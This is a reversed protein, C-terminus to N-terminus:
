SLVARSFAELDTELPTFSPALKERIARADLSCRAIPRPQSFLFVDAGRVGFLQGTIAQAEDSALFAVFRGVHSPDIGLAEEKYAAQAENQPVISETVRTAGFPAVANVAVGTRAMDHALVRTLGFLGAKSSAYASQAFNGYFGATSVINVIRGWQYRGGGRGGKAQERMLIAASRSAAFAAVLNTRLVAEFDEIAAKFAFGDRMIAANNVLIDLGGFREKALQVAREPAGAQTLSETFAVVGRDFTSVFAATVGPKEGVGDIATGNDAVVVSAGSSWLERVIAAGIGRAGGTVLAVRGTM